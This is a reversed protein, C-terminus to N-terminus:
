LLGSCYQCWFNLHRHTTHHATCLVNIPVSGITTEHGAGKWAHPSFPDPCVHIPGMYRVTHALWICLDLWMVACAHISHVYNLSQAHVCYLWHFTLKNANRIWACWFYPHWINRPLVPGICTQGSGKEGHAHFPAPCSVIRITLRLRGGEGGGVGVRRREWVCVCVSEREREREDLWLIFTCLFTSLVLWTVRLDLGYYIKEITYM